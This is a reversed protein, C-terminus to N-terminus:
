SPLYFKRQQEKTVHRTNYHLINKKTNKVEFYILIISNKFKKIKLM